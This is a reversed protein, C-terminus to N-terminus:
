APHELVFAEIGYEDVCRYKSPQQFSSIGIGDGHLRDWAMHYFRNASFGLV